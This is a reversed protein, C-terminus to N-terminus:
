RFGGNVKQFRNQLSIGYSVSLGASVMYIGQNAVCFPANHLCFAFSKYNFLFISVILYFAKPWDM